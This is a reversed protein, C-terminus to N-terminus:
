TPKLINGGAGHFGSLTTLELEIDGDDLVGIRQFGASQYLKAAVENKPKHMTRIREAGLARMEGIALQLAQRGFGRKQHPKVIMFRFLWYLQPDPPDTEACYMLFGVLDEEAYIARPCYHPEFKSEAISYVNPAVFGAQDPPLELKACAVWNKRCVDRLQVRYENM